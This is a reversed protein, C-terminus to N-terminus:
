SALLANYHLFYGAAPAPGTLKVTFGANTRSVIDHVLFDGGEPREIDLSIAPKQGAPYTPQFVINVTGVGAEIAVVGSRTRGDFVATAANAANGAADVADAAAQEATDKAEEAAAKAAQAQAVLSQMIELDEAPPAEDGRLIDNSVDAILTGSKAFPGEDKRWIFEGM